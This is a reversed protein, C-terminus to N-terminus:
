RYHLLRIYSFCKLIHKQKEHM